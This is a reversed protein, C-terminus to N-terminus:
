DVLGLVTQLLEDTISIIRASAEYSRQLKTLNVLEEDMNVGSKAKIQQDIGELLYSKTELTDQTHQVEFGVAAVLNSNYFESFSRSAVFQYNGSGTGDFDSLGSVLANEEAPTLVGSITDKLEILQKINTNDSAPYAPDLAAAIEIPDHLNLDINSADIKGAATEPGIRFFDVGTNGNLDYGQSHQKNLVTAFVTSFDNLNDITKNIFAVGKLYGGVEGNSLDKSIDISGLKVLPDGNSDTDFSLPKSRDYLVLDFGKATAVDVTGDKRFTARTDILNSLAKLTRDREDLYADTKGEQASGARINANITALKSTIENIQTINDKISLLTKEKTDSLNDYSTRIRGTLDQAASLVSHRAAIDDPNVAVDNFAGFFENLSNSLGSGQIDNFVIEVQDLIGKYSQEGTVQQNVNISRSYLSQDFTREIKVLDVGGNIIDTYIPDKRNYGDTYVNAMNQSTIDIGKKYSLLSQSGLSLTSFLSM